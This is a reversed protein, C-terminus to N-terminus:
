PRVTLGISMTWAAEGISGTAERTARIGTVDLAARGRALLSGAGFSLSRERVSSLSTGFPLTRARAGARLQINYSAIRPGIVDAGVSTDWDDTIRLTRSGLGRMSSWSDRSARVGIATGRLGLFAAGFSIRDPVNATALTTDGRKLSLSGGRRYSAALSGVRNLLLEVGGSYASGTFGVTSTDLIAAFRLSDDFQQANRLRNDGTIAHGAVGLRLWPRPMWALALRADGMAGDSKFTSTSTVAGDSLPQSARTTTQFTRDLLNSVSFGLTVEDTLPVAAVVLPYRAITTHESAAGRTITRYEPEAQFYLAAGGLNLISAPNSVSLPDSEALAGGTGLARASIQGAPYGFGQTSLTGQGRAASPLAALAAVLLALRRM